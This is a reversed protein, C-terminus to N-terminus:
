VLLITYFLIRFYFCILTIRNNCYELVDFFAADGTTEGFDFNFRCLKVRYADKM